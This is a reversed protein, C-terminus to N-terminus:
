SVSYSWWNGETARYKDVVAHENQPRFQLAELLLDLFPQHSHVFLQKAGKKNALKLIADLLFPLRGAESKTIYLKKLWYVGEEMEELQFSGEITGDIEVVYGKLLLSEKQIGENNALYSDLKDEPARYAPILNM